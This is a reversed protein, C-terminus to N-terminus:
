EHISKMNGIVKNYFDVQKLALLKWSYNNILHQLSNDYSVFLNAKIIATKLGEMWQLKQDSGLIVENMEKGIKAIEGVD